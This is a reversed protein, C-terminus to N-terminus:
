FKYSISLTGFMGKQYSLVTVEEVGSLSQDPNVEQIREVKPDLLNKLTLGASLNKTIDTKFVFDLMGFGKDILNGRGNTGIAYWRDSFYNYAVTAMLNRDQDFQYSYSIDANVLWDSAGTLKGEKDTFYVSLDTEDSVKDSDFDQNNYM